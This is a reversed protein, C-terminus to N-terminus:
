REAFVHEPRLHTPAQKTNAVTVPASASAMTPRSGATLTDRMSTFSNSLAPAPVPTLRCRAPLDRVGDDALHADRQRHHDAGAKKHARRGRQMEEVDFGASSCMTCPKTLTVGDPGASARVRM